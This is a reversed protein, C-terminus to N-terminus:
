NEEKSIDFGAKILATKMIGLDNKYSANKMIENETSYKPTSRKKIDEVKETTDENSRYRM